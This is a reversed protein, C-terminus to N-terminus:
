GDKKESGNEQWEILIETGQDPQSNITLAAGITQAREHMISLGLQHPSTAEPDFGRGNDRIRLTVGNPLCRLNVWARSARAHKGVNNLAEQTIRYLAVQVEASLQCNGMTSTTIPLNTRASMAETLQGLLEGLPREVLADPRLEMLLTRMEALSGRTLNRLEELSILAEEPHTEWVSPLAEAILSSTYLSQTVSDHLERALRQRESDVAAEQALDFLRTNEIAGAIDTAIIESLSVEDPSYDRRQRDCGVFMIGIVAGRIRLPVIMLARINRDRLLTDIEAPLTVTQIDPVILSEGADIAGRIDPVNLLPLTKGVMDATDSEREFQALIKMHDDELIAVTTIASDFIEMVTRVVAHLAAPLQAVNALMNAIKNLMALEEVRRSLADEAQKRETIRGLREAIASLLNREEEVFPEEEREPVGKLYRVEVSGAREGRVIIDATQLCTTEEFNDTKFEQDDLIIRACVVEPYQWTPPILDVTRQLIETLSIGQRGSIRSIGYLCNLEKVREGLEHTQETVQAELDLEQNRAIHRQWTFGGAVAGVLLLIVLGRFWNSVWWPPTITIEISTGEENWVGDNNSGTVRFVYEGPDLNTYTVFRRDSSVETWQDDFGELKYRYRNKSPSTYNLAAFEFSIVRDAHSLVLEKTNIISNKLVSDAGIEVPKNALQFDTIMIPPIHSNEHIAEPYFANLGNVGGFYFEGTHSKYLANFNFQDGQLGDFSDYNKFTELRPDFKTLGRSTSIWLFGHDDETIGMITDSPLGDVERYHIFRENQQDFKNLGGGNTGIWLVGEQDFFVSSTSNHSLSLPDKPDHFYRSCEMKDKSFRNLGGLTGIWLEGSNSEAISMVSNDSLSNADTPDKQYRIFQGTESNFRNLGGNFTGVWLTGSSDLFLSRVVNDSLSNLDSPDNTYQTFQGASRDYKNLGMTATGVWLMGARDEVVSLIGNNSLSYPDSPDHMFRTFHAPAADPENQRDLRNLGNGTGIWVNGSRDEYIARVDNNSLSDPLAPNHQILTFNKKYRDIRNIGGGNTGIWLSGVQDVLLAVTGDHSLSHPNNPDPQYRIFKGTNRDLQNLGTRQGGVWLVGKPDEVISLINNSSLSNPDAPDHQYAIFEGTNQNYQNLGGGVTGIWLDGSRDEYISWVRDNSLSTPDAQDHKFHTFLGTGREFRNLGGGNTGIWLAGTQDEYLAQINNHSLSNPNNPANNFLTFTATVVDLKNLGEATGVWIVGDHDEYIAQVRNSSISGPDSPDHQYRTFQETEPNFKSLGGGWSGIWLNKLRDEIIVQASNDGLSNPDNVDHKYVKFEVGDFRNLGDVTGIWVFGNSDQLVSWVINSSLGNKNSLHDFHINEIAPIPPQRDGLPTPTGQQAFCPTVSAIILSALLLLSLFLQRLQIGGFRLRGYMSHLVFVTRTKLRAM